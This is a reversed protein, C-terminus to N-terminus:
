NAEEKISTKETSIGQQHDSLEAALFVTGHAHDDLDNTVENGKGGGKEKRSRILKRVEEGDERAKEAERARRSEEKEWRRELKLRGKEEIEARLRVRERRRAAQGDQKRANKRAEAKAEAIDEDKPKWPRSLVNDHFERMSSWFRAEENTDSISSVRDLRIQRYDHFTSIHGKVKLTAGVDVVSLLQHIKIEEKDLKSSSSPLSHTLPAVIKGGSPGGVTSEPDFPRPYVIEITEGSSDDLILIYYKPNYENVEVVVGAVSVYQIPHNIYHFLAPSHSQLGGTAGNGCSLSNVFNAPAPKLVNHIEYATLKVWTFWTPSLKHTVPPYITPREIHSQSESRTSIDSEPSSM